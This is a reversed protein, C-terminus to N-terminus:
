IRSLKPTPRAEFVYGLKQLRGRLKVFNEIIGNHVLAVRASRAVRELGGRQQAPRFHPHANPETV